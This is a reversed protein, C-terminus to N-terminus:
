FIGLNKEGSGNRGEWYKKKGSRGFPRLVTQLPKGGPGDFFPIRVLYVGGIIEGRGGWVQTKKPVAQSKEHGGGKV